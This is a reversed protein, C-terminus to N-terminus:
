VVIMKIFDELSVRAGAALVHGGGDFQKALDLASPRQGDVSRFSLKVDNGKITFMVAACGNRSSLINGCASEHTTINYAPLMDEGIKLNIPSIEVQEAIEKGAYASIIAGKSKIEELDGSLIQLVQAPNNTFLWLYSNVKKTDEGYRGKWLDSDEVLKIMEPLEETPFFYQWTLSAGSKNNDFIFTFDSNEKALLDLTEKAGIHHDLTTVKFGRNLIESVGIGCDVTYVETEKDIVSLIEELDSPKYDHSLPFLQAQPFKRLVVAAAVTGDICNKHYIAIIKKM